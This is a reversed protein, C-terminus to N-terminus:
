NTKMVIYNIPVKNKVVMMYIINKPSKYLAFTTNRSANSGFNEYYPAEYNKITSLLQQRNYLDSPSIQFYFQQRPTAPENESIFNDFIDYCKTVITTTM